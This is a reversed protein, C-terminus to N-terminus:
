TSARGIGRLSLLGQELGQTTIAPDVHAVHRFQERHRGLRDTLIEGFQLSLAQQPAHV